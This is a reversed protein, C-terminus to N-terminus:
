PDPELKDLYAFIEGPNETLRDMLTQKVREIGVAEIKRSNKAIEALPMGLALLPTFKDQLPKGIRQLSTPSLTIGHKDTLWQSIGHYPERALLKAILETRTANPLTDIIARKPM